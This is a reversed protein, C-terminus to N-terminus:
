GRVISHHCRLLRVPCTPGFWSRHPIDANHKSVKPKTKLATESNSPSNAFAQLAKDLKKPAGGLMEKRIGESMIVDKLRQPNQDIDQRLAALAGAEPHWM